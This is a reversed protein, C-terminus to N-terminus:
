LVGGVATGVAFTLGMALLGVGVNRAVAPLPPAGGLRASVAGTVALALTM